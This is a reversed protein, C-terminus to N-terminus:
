LTSVYLLYIKLFFFTLFFFFFFFLFQIVLLEELTHGLDSSPGWETRKGRHAARSVMIYILSAKFGCIDAQKQRRLAPILTM